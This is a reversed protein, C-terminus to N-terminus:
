QFFFFYNKQIYMISVCYSIVENMLKSIKLKTKQYACLQVLGRYEFNRLFFYNEGVFFCFIFVHREEDGGRGM